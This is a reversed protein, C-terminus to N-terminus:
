AKLSKVCEEFFRRQEAVSVIADAEAPAFIDVVDRRDVRAGLRLRYAMRGGNERMMGSPYVDRAAGQVLIRGGRVELWERFAVLADFLDRREVEFWGVGTIEATLRWPRADAADIRCEATSGDSFM